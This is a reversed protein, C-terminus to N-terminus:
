RCCNGRCCDPGDWRGWRTVDWKPNFCHDLCPEDEAGADIHDNYRETWPMCHCGLNGSAVLGVVALLIFRKM